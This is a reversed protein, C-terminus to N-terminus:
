ITEHKAESIRIATFDGCVFRSTTKSGTPSLYDVIALETLPNIYIDDIRVTWRTDVHLTIGNGAKDAQIFFTRYKM